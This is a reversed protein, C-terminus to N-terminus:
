FGTLEVREVRSFRMVWEPEELSKELTSNIEWYCDVDRPFLQGYIRVTDGSKMRLLDQYLSSKSRIITNHSKDAGPNKWTGLSIKNAIKVTLVGDGAGITSLTDITGVWAEVRPSKLVACILQARAPRVAGKQFDNKGSKYQSRSHEIAQIFRAQESPPRLLEARRRDSEAKIEEDRRRKEAEQAKVKEIEVAKAEAAQRKADVEEPTVRAWTGQWRDDSTLVLFFTVAFGLVAAFAVWKAQRLNRFTPFISLAILALLSLLFAGSSLYLM